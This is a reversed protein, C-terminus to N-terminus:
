LPCLHHNSCTGRVAKAFSPYRRQLKSVFVSRFLPVSLSPVPLLFVRSVFGPHFKTGNFYPVCNGNEKLPDPNQGRNSHDDPFTSATHM